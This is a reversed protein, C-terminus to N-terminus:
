AQAKKKGLLMYAGVAVAGIMILTSSDMGFMGASSTEIPPTLSAGGGGSSFTTAAGKRPPTSSPCVGPLDFGFESKISPVTKAAEAAAGCTEAGCKGDTGIKQFGQPVLISNLKEQFAKCEPTSTLGLAPRASLIGLSM